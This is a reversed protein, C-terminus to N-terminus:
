WRVSVGAMGWRGPMPYDPRYEYDADGLNEGAVFLEVSPASERWMYGLRGSVLLFSDVRQTNVATTSRGQSLVYQSGVRQADLSLRWRNRQGNLGAVYTQRPTYPLATPSPDLLTVAGFLHWDRDIAWSVSGELGRVDAGDLNTWFPPPPPPPVFVYRNRGKDYFGALDFVLGPLAEYSAGFEWHEVREAELDRWSEGLPPIVNTSFVIVELGPYNIGRSANARLALPGRELVLGAHPSTESDFTNHDYYRIGASPTLTWEGLQFTKSLAAYPSITRLTRGDFQTTQGVAPRFRVDGTIREIDLGLVIQTEPWLFLTERARLGDGSFDTLTDSGNAQEFWYGRGDTVYIKVDGAANSHQHSLTVAALGLRTEFQGNKLEPAGLPGPDSAENDTWLAMVDLGWHRDIERGMRVFANRLEGNGDPRDGDSSMYSGAVIM